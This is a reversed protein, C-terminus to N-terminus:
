KILMERYQQNFPGCYSLFASSLAVDGVLNLISQDIEKLQEGWRKREGSLGKILSSAANLRAATKDAKEQLARRNGEAVDFEAQLTDLVAQKAALDGEAKEKAANAIALQKNLEIVKNQIPIFDNMIYHYKVLCGCWSHLGVVQKFAREAATKDRMDAQKEVYARILECQEDTVADKEFQILRNFFGPRKGVTSAPGWSPKMANAVGKGAAINEEDFAVKNVKENLLIMVCDFVRQIIPPPNDLKVLQVIASAQISNLAEEAAIKEPEAKKKGEEAIDTNQKVIRAKEACEDV